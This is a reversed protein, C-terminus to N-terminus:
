ILAQTIKTSLPETKSSFFDILQGNKNVIPSGSSGGTAPISYISAGNSDGSYIGSLIPLM